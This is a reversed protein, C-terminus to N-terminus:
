SPLEFNVHPQQQVLENSSAVLPEAVGHNTQIARIHRVNVSTTIFANKSQPQVQQVAKM